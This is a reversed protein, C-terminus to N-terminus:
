KIEMYKLEPKGCKWLIEVFDAQPFAAMVEARTKKLLRLPKNVTNKV